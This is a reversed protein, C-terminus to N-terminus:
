HPVSSHVEGRSAWQNPHDKNRTRLPTNENNAEQKAETENGLGTVAKVVDRVGQRVDKVTQRVTQRFETVVASVNSGVKPRNDDAKTGPTGNLPDAKQSGILNGGDEITQKVNPDPLNLHLM